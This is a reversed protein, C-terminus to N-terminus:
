ARGLGGALDLARNLGTVALLAVVPLALRSFRIVATIRDVTADRIAAGPQSPKRSHSLLGTLLWVLGGAWVGAALLHLWQALLNVPRLASPAAAHGALVQLGMAVAATLGVAALWGRAVGDGPLAQSGDAVAERDPGDLRRIRAALLGAATASALVGAALWALNRGTDSALLDALSAGVASWEAAVRAVLGVVALGAGVLLLPWAGPPLQRDYVVLGTAAAGVLLALGCYLLWRGATALPTPPPTSAAPVSAGQAGAAPAAVGVGFAFSGGTVHGDDRSVTRWAVTYTGEPLVPLPVRLQFPQGAVPGTKGAQVPRGDADLVQVTSLRPEPRETFTLPSRGPRGTLRRGM